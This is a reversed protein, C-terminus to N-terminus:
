QLPRRPSILPRRPAPRAGWRPLLGGERGDHEDETEHEHEIKPQRASSLLFSDLVLGLGGAGRLHPAVNLTSVRGVSRRAGRVANRTHRRDSTPAAHRHAALVDLVGRLAMPGPLRARFWRLGAHHHRADMLGRATVFEGFAAWVAHHSSREIDLELLVGTAAHFMAYYSRSVADSWHGLRLLDGAVCIFGDARQLREAVESRM